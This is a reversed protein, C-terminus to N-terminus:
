KQPITKVLEKVIERRVKGMRDDTKGCAAGRVCIVDVGTEWYEPLEDKTISGAIWAEVNRKKCEGVFKKIEAYTFYDSLRKGIRKDFTDILIGDAKIKATLRPGEELPNFIKVLSTDAFFAPVIKKKPYWFKVTRVVSDGLYAAEKFSMKAFGTKIVDAGALAVGLVSQAATSRRGQEEGINTSVLIRKPLARRIAYINLPYPTGLASAPYEADAIQAGGRFAELAEIKGRISVLLKQM